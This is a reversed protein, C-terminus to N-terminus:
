VNRASGTSPPSAQALCVEGESPSPAKAHEASGATAEVCHISSIRESPGPDAPRGERQKTQRRSMAALGDAAPGHPEGNPRTRTFRQHGEAQSGTAQVGRALIASRHGKAPQSHTRSPQRSAKITTSSETAGGCRPAWPLGFAAFANLAPAGLL